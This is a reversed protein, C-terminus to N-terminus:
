RLLSKSSNNLGICKIWHTAVYRNKTDLWLKYLHFLILHRYIILGFNIFLNELSSIETNALFSVTLGWTRSSLAQLKQLTRQVSKSCMIFSVRYLKLQVNCNQYHLTFIVSYMISQLFLLILTNFLIAYLTFIVTM